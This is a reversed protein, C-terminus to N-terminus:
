DVGSHDREPSECYVCGLSQVSIYPPDLSSAPVVPADKLPFLQILTGMELVSRLWRGINGPGTIGSEMGVLISVLLRQPGLFLDDLVSLNVYCSEPQM